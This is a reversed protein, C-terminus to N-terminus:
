NTQGITVEVTPNLAQSNFVDESPTEITSSYEEITKVKVPENTNQLGPIAGVVFYATIASISAILIIMAIDTKKM